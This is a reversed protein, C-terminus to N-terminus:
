ADYVTVKKGDLVLSQGSTYSIGGISLEETTEDFSVVVSSSDSLTLTATQGAGASKVFPIAIAAGDEVSTEEGRKVFKAKTKGGGVDFEIEDGTDFIENMVEGLSNLTDASLGSFSFAGGGSQEEFNSRDYNGAISQSTFITSSGVPISPKAFNTSYYVYVTYETEPQLNKITHALDTTTRVSETVTNVSPQGLSYAVGYAIAGTIASWRTEISLPRPVLVMISPDPPLDPITGDIVVGMSGISPHYAKKNVTDLVFGFGWTRDGEILDTVGDLRVRLFGENQWKKVTYIMGDLVNIGNNFAWGLTRVTTTVGTSLVRYMLDDGDVYVLTDPDLPDLSLSRATGTTAFLLQPNSGDIDMTWIEDASTFYITSGDFSVDIGTINSTHTYITNNAYFSVHDTTFEFANELDKGLNVVSLGQAGIIEKTQYNVAFHSVNYQVVYTYTKSVPNYLQLRNGVSAVMEVPNYPDLWTTASGEIINTPLSTSYQLFDSVVASASRYIADTYVADDTSSQIKFNLATGSSHGRSSFTTDTTTGSLVDNVFVNYSTAGAVPEWVIDIGDYYRNSVTIFPEYFDFDTGVVRIVNYGSIIMSNTYPDIYIDPTDATGSELHVASVGLLEHVENNSPNFRYYKSNAAGTVPDTTGFYLYGRAYELDNGKSGPRLTLPLTTFSAPSLDSSIRRVTATNIDHFYIFHNDSDFAFGGIEHNSGILTTTDVTIENLGDSDARFLQHVGGTSTKCGFVYTNSFDGRLRKYTGDSSVIEVLKTADVIFTELNGTDGNAYIAKNTILNYHMGKAFIKPNTTIMEKQRLTLTEVTSPWGSWSVTGRCGLFHTETYATISHYENTSTDTVVTNCNLTGTLTLSM